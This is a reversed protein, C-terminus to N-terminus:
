NTSGVYEIFEQREAKKHITLFDITEIFGHKKWTSFDQKNKLCEWLEHKNVTEFLENM